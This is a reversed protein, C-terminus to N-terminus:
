QRKLRVQQVREQENWVIDLTDLQAQWQDGRKTGTNHLAVLGDVVM